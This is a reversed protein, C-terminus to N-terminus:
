ANNLSRITSMTSCAVACGPRVINAPAIQNVQMKPSKAIAETPRATDTIPM